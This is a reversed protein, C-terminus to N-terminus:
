GGQAAKSSLSMTCLNFLNVPKASGEDRKKVERNKNIEPQTKPGVM